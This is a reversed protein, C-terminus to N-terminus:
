ATWLIRSQGGGRVLPDLVGDEVSVSQYSTLRRCKPSLSVIKPAEVWSTASHFLEGTFEETEWAKGSDRRQKGDSDSGGRGTRGSGTRRSVAPRSSRRGSLGRPAAASM